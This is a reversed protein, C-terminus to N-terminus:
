AFSYKRTSRRVGRAASARYSAPTAPSPTRIQRTTAPEGDGAVWRPAGLRDAPPLWTHAAPTVVGASCHLSPELVPTCSLTRRVPASRRTSHDDPMSGIVAASLKEM